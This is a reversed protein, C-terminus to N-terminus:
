VKWYQNTHINSIVSQDIDYRQAIEYQTLNGNDLLSRIENAKEISLKVCGRNRLNDTMTAWKCNSKEYNGNSDIREITLNSPRAGMDEFFGAFKQWKECVAIGKAGYYKYEPCKPNQCRTRMGAWIRYTSTRRQGHTKNLGGMRDRRLCGCSKIAGNKLCMGLINQEKGCDCRCVWIRNRGKDTGFLGIVVLRSFRKGVLSGCDKKM